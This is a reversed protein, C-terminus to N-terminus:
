LTTSILRKSPVFESDQNPRCEDVALIFGLPNRKDTFVKELDKYAAMAYDKRSFVSRVKVEETVPNEITISYISKNM